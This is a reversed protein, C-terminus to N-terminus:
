PATPQEHLAGGMQRDVPIAIQSHSSSDTRARRTGLETVHLATFLRERIFIIQKVVRHATLIRAPHAAIYHAVYLSDRHIAHLRSQAWDRQASVEACRFHPPKRRIL